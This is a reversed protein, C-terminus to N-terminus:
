SSAVFDLDFGLNIGQFVPGATAPLTVTVSVDEAPTALLLSRGPSAPEDVLGYLSGVYLPTTGVTVSVALENALRTAASDTTPSIPTWNATITYFEDVTGTNSVNILGSVSSGPTMNTDLIVSAAPSVVLSVTGTDTANNTESTEFLFAM